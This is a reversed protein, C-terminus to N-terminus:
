LRERRAGGEDEPVYEVVAPADRDAALEADTPTNGAAVDEPHYTFPDYAGAVEAPTADGTLLGGAGWVHTDDMRGPTPKGNVLIQRVRGSV